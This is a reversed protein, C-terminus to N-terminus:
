EGVYAPSESWPAGPGGLGNGEGRQGALWPAGGTTEVGGLISAGERGRSGGCGWGQAQTQGRVSPLHIGGRGAGALAMVWATGPGETEGHEGSQKGRRIGPLRYGPSNLDQVQLQLRPFAGNRHALAQRAETLGPGPQARGQPWGSALPSVAETGASGAGCGAETGLGAAQGQRNGDGCRHSSQGRRVGM